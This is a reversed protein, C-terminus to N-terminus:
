YTKAYTLKIGNTVYKGKFQEDRPAFQSIGTNANGANLYQYAISLNSSKDLSYRAGISAGYALAFTSKKEFPDRAAGQFGEASNYAVGISGAVFPKVAYALEFDKYLNAMLRNSTVEKTQANANFPSHYSTFEAKSGLVLEVEGRFGTYQRGYAANLSMVTPKDNDQVMGTIRPNVFSYNSYKASAAEVGFSMYDQALAAGTSSIVAIGILIKKM